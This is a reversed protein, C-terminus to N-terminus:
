LRELQKIISTFHGLMQYFEDPVVDKGIRCVLEDIDRLLSPQQYAVRLMQEYLQPYTTSSKSTNAKSNDNAFTGDALLETPEEALMLSVYNMFKEKSDVVSRYIWNDRQEPMGITPVKCLVHKHLNGDSIELVYFESLNIGAMSRWTIEQNFPMPQSKEHLPHITINCSDLTKGLKKRAEEWYKQYTQLQITFLGEQEATEIVVRKISRMAWKLAHEMDQERQIDPSPEDKTAETVQIYRNDDGIIESKVQEFRDGQMQRYQLGLMMETNRYYASNTANASGLYLFYGRNDGTTRQVLYMKAHLNIPAIQNDLMSDNVCYVEDMCEMVKETIQDRRTVLVSYANQVRGRRATLQEIMKEEVFPSVIMLREATLLQQLKTTGSPQTGFWIPFWQYVDEQFPADVNMQGMRLVDNVLQLLHHKKEGAPVYNSLNSLLWSIPQNMEEFASHRGQPVLQARMSAVVDIDDSYTLNRSLVIVRIQEKGKADHEKIIWLKAHFNALINKDYSIEQISGELLSYITQATQPVAIGGKNCFVIFKDSGRRIAELMYTPSLRTVTDLEGLWGFSMPVSLLGEFSLSYTTGVAFEVEYGASPQLLDSYLWDKLTSQRQAM